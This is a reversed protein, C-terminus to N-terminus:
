LLKLLEVSQTGKTYGISIFLNQLHKNNNNSFVVEYGLDKAMKTLEKLLMCLAEKRQPKLRFKKNSIIWEVWAIDSNTEYVFGAAVPTKDYEIMIGGLGNAPLLNKKPAEFGWDKWWHILKTDYDDKELVRLNFKM